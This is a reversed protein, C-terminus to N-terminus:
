EEETKEAITQLTDVVKSTNESNPVSGQPHCRGQQPLCSTQDIAPEWEWHRLCAKWKLHLVGQEFMVNAM